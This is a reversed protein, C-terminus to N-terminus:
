DVSGRLSRGTVVTSLAVDLNIEIWAGAYPAVNIIKSTSRMALSKLGRERTPLSQMM